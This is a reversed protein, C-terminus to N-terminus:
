IKVIYWRWYKTLNWKQNICNEFHKIEADGEKLLISLVDIQWPQNKNIMYRTATRILSRIKSRSVAEEPFGFDTSTRTKVEVFIIVNNKQCILDIEGYRTYFNTELIKYGQEQLYQVAIQEGFNGLSKM